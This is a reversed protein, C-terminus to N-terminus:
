NYEFEKVLDGQGEAICRQVEEMFLAFEPQESHDVESRDIPWKKPELFPSIVLLELKDKADLADPAMYKHDVLWSVLEDLDLVKSEYQDYFECLRAQEERITDVVVREESISIKTDHISRLIQELNPVFSLLKASLGTVITADKGRRKTIAEILVVFKPPAVLDIDFMKKARDGFETSLPETVSTEVESSRALHAYGIDALVTIFQSLAHVREHMESEAGTIADLRVDNGKKGYLELLGCCRAEVQHQLVHCRQILTASSVYSGGGVIRKTLDRATYFLLKLPSVAGEDLVYTLCEAAFERHKDTLDQQRNWLTEYLGNMDSPLSDVRELVTNWDDYQIVDKLIAKTVLAVWLFIGDARYTIARSLNKFSPQSRRPLDQEATHRRQERIWDAVRTIKLQSSIYKSIDNRTLDQLRLSPYGSLAHQLEPEPRSSLCIKIGKLTQLRGMLELLRSQGDSLGSDIEDLGDIFLCAPLDRYSVLACFTRELEKTSWDGHSKKDWIHTDTAMAELVSPVKSILSHLITCLLGKISRQLPTGASWIFSAIIQAGPKSKRLIDITRDSSLLFRILTSKGSGPKGSIWFIPATNELWEVFNGYEYTDAAVSSSTTESGTNSSHDAGHSEENNDNITHDGNPLTEVDPRSSASNNVDDKPGFIWGFTQEHADVVQNSRTNMDEFYLSELLRDRRMKDFTEAQSNELHRKVPEIESSVHDRIKIGEDTVGGQISLSQHIIVDETRKFSQQLLSELDTHGSRLQVVVNRLSHDLDDLKVNAMTDSSRLERDMRVLIHTHLTLHLKSLSADLENVKRKGAFNFKLAKGFVRAKSTGQPIQFKKMETQLADAIKLLEQALYKLDKDIPAKCSALGTNLNGVANSLANTNFAIGPAPSKDAYLSRCTALTTKSFDIVQMVNAAISLGAIAEAM